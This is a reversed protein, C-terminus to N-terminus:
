ENKEGEIKPMKKVHLRDALPSPKLEDSVGLIGLERRYHAKIAESMDTTEMFMSLFAGVRALKKEIVETEQKYEAKVKEVTQPTLYPLATKYKERLEDIEHQSYHFDVGKVKHSLM